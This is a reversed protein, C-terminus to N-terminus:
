YPPMIPRGTGFLRHPNRRVMTFIRTLQFAERAEDVWRTFRRRMEEDPIWQVTRRLGQFTRANAIWRNYREGWRPRWERNMRRVYREIRRQVERVAAREM